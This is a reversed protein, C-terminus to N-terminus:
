VTELWFGIKGTMSEAPELVRHGTEGVGAEALNFANTAHTIPELAITDDPAGTFVVFHGFIESAEIHLTCDSWALEASGGWGNFVHDIQRSELAKPTAFELWAPIPAAAHQPVNSQDTLYVGSAAFRLTPNQGRRVFYPHIGFGVPMPQDGTNEFRMELTYRKGELKHKVQMSFGFPFNLDPPSIFECVLSSGYQVVTWPRNQVDGHRATQEKSVNVLLQYEQGAFRFKGQPIRNSWPALTYSSFKASSASTLLEPATPRMIDTWQGSIKAQLATPSAGLRPLLSLRWFENEITSLNAPLDTQVV